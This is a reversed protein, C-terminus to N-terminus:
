RHDSNTQSVLTAALDAFIRICVSRGNGAVSITTETKSSSGAHARRNRLWAQGNRERGDKYTRRGVQITCRDKKEGM